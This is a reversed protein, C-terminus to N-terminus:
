QHSAPHRSQHIQERIWEQVESEVWAAAKGLRIQRPFTGEKIKDYIKTRGLGVMKQLESFRIFRQQMM